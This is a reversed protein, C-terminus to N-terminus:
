GSIVLRIYIHQLHPNSYCHALPTEWRQVIPPLSYGSLKGKFFQNEVHDVVEEVTKPNTPVTLLLFALASNVSVSASGRLWQQRAWGMTSVSLLFVFCKDLYVVPVARAGFCSLSLDRVGIYQFSLQAISYCAIESSRYTSQEWKVLGPAKMVHLFPLISVIMMVFVREAAALIGLLSSSAAAALFAGTAAEM